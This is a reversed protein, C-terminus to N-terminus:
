RFCGAHRLVLWVMFLLALMFLEAMNPYVYLYMFSSLALDQM